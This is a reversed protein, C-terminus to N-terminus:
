GNGTSLEIPHKLQETDWVLGDPGWHFELIEQDRGGLVRVAFRVRRPRGDDYRDLVENSWITRSRKYKPM